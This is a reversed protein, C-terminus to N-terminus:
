RSATEVVSDVVVVLSDLANQVATKAIKVDPQKQDLAHRAVRVQQEVYRVPLYVTHQAVEAAAEKLEEAARVKDGAQAHNQAQKIMSRTNQAAEPAFVALEDLSAYIPLLDTQLADVKEEVLRDSADIMEEVVTLYPMVREIANAFEKSVILASRAQDVQGSDLLARATSLHSILARGSNVAIQAM